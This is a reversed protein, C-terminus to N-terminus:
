YDLTVVYKVELDKSNLCYNYDKLATRGTWVQDIIVRILIHSHVVSESIHSQEPRIELDWLSSIAGTKNWRSVSISHWLGDKYEDLSTALFFHLVTNLWELGSDRTTNYCFVKSEQKYTKGHELSPLCLMQSLHLITPTCQKQLHTAFGYAQMGTFRHIWRELQLFVLYIGVYSLCAQRKKGGYVHVNRLDIGLKLRCCTKFSRWQIHRPKMSVRAPRSGGQSRTACWISTCSTCIQMRLLPWKLLMGLHWAQIQRTVQAGWSVHYYWAHVSPAQPWHQSFTCGRDFQGAPRWLTMNCLM